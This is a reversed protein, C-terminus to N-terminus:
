QHNRRHALLDKLKTYADTIANKTTETLGSLAGAGIAATVPDIPMEKKGPCLSTPAANHEGRKSDFGQPTMLELLKLRLVFRPWGPLLMIIHETSRHSCMEIRGIMNQARELRKKHQM